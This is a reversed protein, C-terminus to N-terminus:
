ISMWRRHYDDSPMKSTIKGTSWWGFPVKQVSMWVTDAGGAIRM